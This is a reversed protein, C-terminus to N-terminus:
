GASPWLRISTGVPVWGGYPRVPPPDDAWGGFEFVIADTRIRGGCGDQVWERLRDERSRRM